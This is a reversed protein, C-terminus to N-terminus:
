AFAHHNIDALNTVFDEIRAHLTQGALTGLFNQSLNCDFNERAQPSAAYFCQQLTCDRALHRFDRIHNHGLMRGLPLIYPFGAGESRLVVSVSVYDAYDAEDKIYGVAM